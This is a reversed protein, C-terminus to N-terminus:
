KGGRMAEIAARARARLHTTVNPLRKVTWEWSLDAYGTNSAARDFEYIAAAVREVEEDTTPPAHADLDALLRAAETKDDLRRESMWLGEAWDLVIAIQPDETPESM